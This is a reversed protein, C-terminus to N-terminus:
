NMKKLYSGYNYTEEEEKQTKIQQRIKKSLLESVVALLLGVLVFIGGITLFTYLINNIYSTLLNHIAQSQTNAREVLGLSLLYAPAIITMLGSGLSAYAIYRLLRHFYKRLLLFTIISLLLWLIGTAIMAIFVMNEFELLMSVGTRIFSMSTMRTYIDSAISGATEVVGEDANMNPNHALYTNLREVLDNGVSQSNISIHEQNDYANEITHSLESQITAPTVLGSILDPPINYGRLQQTIMGNTEDALSQSFNTEDIQNILYNPSFITLRLVLLVSFTLLLVSSLFCLFLRSLKRPSLKKTLM